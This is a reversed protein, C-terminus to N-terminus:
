KDLCRLMVEMGKRWEIAQEKTKFDKCYRTGDKSINGCWIKRSNNFYVGTVGSSCSRLNQQNEFRTCVKLNCKRNDLTNHNIHDVELHRPCNTILRHLKIVGKGKAKNNYRHAIYYSPVKLTKDYIAHWSGISIKEIDEKDILVQLTIDKHRVLMIAYDDKEIIINKM